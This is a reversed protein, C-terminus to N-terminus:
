GIRLYVDAARDNHRTVAALRQKLLGAVCLTGIVQEFQNKSVSLRRQAEILGEM